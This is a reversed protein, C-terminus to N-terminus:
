RGASGARRREVPRPASRDVPRCGEPGDRDDVEVPELVDVVGEPVGVAVLQKDPETAPESLRDPGTVRHGAEAAVLEAHDECADDALALGASGQLPQQADHLLRELEGPQRDRRLGADAEREIGVVARVRLLQQLVGVDGQVQGLDTVGPM